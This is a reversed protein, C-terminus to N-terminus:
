KRTAPRPKASYPGITPQSDLKMENRASAGM